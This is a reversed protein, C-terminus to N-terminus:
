AARQIPMIRDTDVWITHEDGHGDRFELEAQGYTFGALTVPKGIVKRIATQDEEPLDHLLSTPVSKLIVLDGPQMSRM